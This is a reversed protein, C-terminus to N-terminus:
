TTRDALWQRLDQVLAQDLGSGTLVLRGRSHKLFVGQGVEEGKQARAGQKSAPKAEARKLARELAAREEAPTGPPTKRLADRLRAGFDPAAEIARVLTLGLKEPIATPFRLVSELTDHLTVFNMIKSRKSPSAHAFLAQVAAQTSPYVGIRAAEAAVRAREYFSLNARIENEEVMAVYAADAGEPARVLALVRDRGLQRLAEIRRLGSVLGYGGEPLPVLEVPTQQGRAELSAVLASMDEANLDMRDRLLHDLRIEELAISQILRGEERAARLAGAVEEFAAQGAADGAVDAIPAARSRGGGWGPAPAKTGAGAILAEPNAPALRKRKAM